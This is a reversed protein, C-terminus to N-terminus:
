GAARKVYEIQFHPIVRGDPRTEEFERVSVEVFGLELFHDLESKALEWPPGDPVVDEPRSRSIVLLRGKDAVLSAIAKFLEPRVEKPLAQLTYTEHVLDFQGVLDDPLAFLDVQRFTVPSKAFRKKAWDIASQSLDIATVEYGNQALFVANDGLGCGVDLAKAGKGQMRTSMWQVLGEHPTKDAWPVLSADGKAGAYLEEFWDTFEGGRAENEAQLRTANEQANSQQQELDKSIKM